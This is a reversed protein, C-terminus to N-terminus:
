LVCSQMKSTILGCLGGDVVDADIAQIEMKVGLVLMTQITTRTRPDESRKPRDPNLTRTQTKAANPFIAELIGRARNRDRKTLSLCRGMIAADALHDVMDVGLWHIPLTAAESAAVTNPVPARKFCRHIDCGDPDCDTLSFIAM